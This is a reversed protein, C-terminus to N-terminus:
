KKVSTGLDKVLRNRIVVAHETVQREVALSVAHKEKLEQSPTLALSKYADVRLAKAKDGAVQLKSLIKQQSLTVATIKMQSSTEKRILMFSEIEQITEELLQTVQPKAVRTVIEARTEAIRSLLQTPPRESSLHGEGSVHEKKAGLLMYTPLQSSGIQPKPVFSPKELGMRAGLGSQRSSIRVVKTASSGLGILQTPQNTTDCSYNKKPVARNEIPM